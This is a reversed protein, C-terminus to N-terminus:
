AVVATVRAKPRSPGATRVAMADTAPTAKQLEKSVAAISNGVKAVAHQLDGASIGLRKKLSRVQSPDSLDIKNRVAHPKTRYMESKERSCALQM